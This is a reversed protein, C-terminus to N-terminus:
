RAMIVKDLGLYSGGILHNAIRTYAADGDSGKIMIVVGTGQQPYFFALSKHYGSNNGWHWVATGNLDTQLGIGLGWSYADTIRVQPSFMQAALSKEQLTTQLLEKYFRSQDEATTTLSAAASVMAIGFIIEMRFSSNKMGLPSLVEKRMYEDFSQGTVEAIVETLLDFGMGSYRFRSGPEFHITKDKFFLDNGLGSTHSLVMRLTIRKGKSGSDFYASKLYDVLPRDLELKKEAVLKLAGYASVVKSLSASQFITDEGCRYYYAGVNTGSSLAVLSVADIAKGGFSKAMLGSMESLSQRIESGNKIPSSVPDFLSNQCGAASIVAASAFLARWVGMEKM